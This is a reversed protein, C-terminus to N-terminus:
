LKKSKQHPYRNFMYCSVLFVILWVSTLLGLYFYSQPKFYLTLRIDISGDENEHYYEKPLSEQIYSKNIQWSNAYGFEMMHTKEFIPKQFIKEIGGRFNIQKNQQCEQAQYQEFNESVIIEQGIQLMENTIGPNLTQIRELSINKLKEVIKELTDRPEIIYKKKANRWNEFIVGSYITPNACSIESFPELYFNWNNNFAEFFIIKESEDQLTLVVDYTTPNRQSSIVTSKEWSIHPIDGLFLVVFNWDEYIINTSNKELLEEQIRMKKSWLTNIKYPTEKRFIVLNISHMRLANQLDHADQIGEWPFIVGWVKYFFDYPMKSIIPDVGSYISQTQQIYSSDAINPFIIFRNIPLKQNEINQIMSEINQINENELFATAYRGDFAQFYLFINIFLNIGLLAILTSKYKTSIQTNQIISILMLLIAFYALWEVKGVPERWFPLIKVIYEIIHINGTKYLILYFVQLFIAFLFLRVGLLWLKNKHTLASFLIVVLITYRFIIYWINTALSHLLPMYFGWQLWEPWYGEWIWWYWLGILNKWLITYRETHWLIMSLPNTGTEGSVIQTVMTSYAFYEYLFPLSVFLITVTFLLFPYIKQREYFLLFLFFCVFIIFEIFVLYVSIFINQCLIILFITYILFKIKKMSLFQWLCYLAGPLFIYFQIFDFHGDIFKIYTFLSFLFCMILVNKYLNSISFLSFFSTLIIYAFLYISLFWLFYSWQLPLGIIGNWFFIPFQKILLSTHNFVFSDNQWVFLNSLYDQISFYGSYDGWLYIWKSYFLIYVVFTISLIWVYNWIKSNM